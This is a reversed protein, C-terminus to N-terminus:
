SGGPVADVPAADDRRSLMASVPAAEPASGNKVHLLTWYGSFNVPLRESIEIGADAVFDQLSFSPDFGLVRSLPALLRELGGLFASPHQFHNVIFLDGGKRCVRRMEEVLRKPNPTVSVVYMAVVKDFAGDGFTMKEADMEALRVNDLNHRKVTDAARRLMESSLDIGTVQVTKPYLPLSLGTGVGVELVSEGPRCSMERVVTRRGHSLIRGFCLDYAPAYRRYAKRVSAIDM